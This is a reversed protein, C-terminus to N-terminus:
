VDVSDVARVRPLEPAEAIESTTSILPPVRHILRLSQSSTSGIPNSGVVKEM